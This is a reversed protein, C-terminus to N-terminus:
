AEEQVINTYIPLNFIDAQIQLWVESKAGGGSAIIKDAKLNMAKIIELCDKLSFVVGELVSRIFHKKEHKLTLGFFIGKARPDFHPTREGALYPLYIMGDSGPEAEIALSDLVKYDVKDFIKENLWKM